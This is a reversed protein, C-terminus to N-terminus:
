FETMYTASGDEVTYAIGAANVYNSPPPPPGLSFTAYFSFQSAAQGGLPFALPMAGFIQPVFRGVGNLTGDNRFGLANNNPLYALWYTGVPCLIPAAVPQTNWGVIPVFEVIPVFQATTAVLAGPYGGNDRYLGLVLSGAPVSVYFSLSQITAPQGLAIPQAVLLNANGSDPTGLITTQGVDITTPAAGTYTLTLGLTAVM